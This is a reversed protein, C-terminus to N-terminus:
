QSYDVRRYSHGFFIRRYKGRTAYVGGYTTSYRLKWQVEPGYPKDLLGPQVTVPWPGRMEQVESEGLEVSRTWVTKATVRTVVHASTDTVYTETAGTGPQIEHLEM